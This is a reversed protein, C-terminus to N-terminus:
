FTNINNISFFQNELGSKGVTGATMLIVHWGGGAERGEVWTDVDEGRSDM